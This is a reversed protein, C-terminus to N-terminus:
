GLGGGVGVLGGVWDVVCVCCGNRVVEVFDHHPPTTLFPHGRLGNPNFAKLPKQVIWPKPRQKPTMQSFVKM